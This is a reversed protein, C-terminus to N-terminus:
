TRPEPTPAGMRHSDAALRRFILLHGLLAALVLVSPLWIYPARTIWTNAPENHFRRIPLPASLLAIIVVNALLATGIWNWARVARLPARGLALLAGLIIAGAGTLIDFNLGSYSMQPPMLGETAARHMALELPFRFGQIAVLAALPTHTALRLGLESRGLSVAIAMTAAVVPLMTPPAQFSLLGAAAAAGTAAMWAATLLAAGLATRRVRRIPTGAAREALAVGTVFAAAVAVPLAGFATLLFSSGSKM